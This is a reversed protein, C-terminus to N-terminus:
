HRCGERVSGNESPQSREADQNWGKRVAETIRAAERAEEQISDLTRWCCGCFYTWKDANSVKPKRMAVGISHAILDFDLGTSYIREFTDPWENPRSITHREGTEVDTWGWVLWLADFDLILQDMVARDALRGLAVAELAKAWRLADDAVNAVLPADPSSSTKGANCDKCAAVLNAPDDGGGLSVPHVHDVTLKVDPATAGCYRCSYKDRRLVEYRLRKSVAM